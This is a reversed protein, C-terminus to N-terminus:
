FSDRWFSKIKVSKLQFFKKGPVKVSGWARSSYNGLGTNLTAGTKIILGFSFGFFLFGKIM